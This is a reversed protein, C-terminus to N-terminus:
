YYAEKSIQIPWTAGMDLLKQKAVENYCILRYINNPEVVGGVFFEAQKRIGILSDNGWDNSLICEKDLLNDIQDVDQQEYFHVINRNLAHGDSFYFLVGSDIVIQMPVVVHILNEPAVKPVGYGHVINYLMPMRAYFYFPVFDGIRFTTGHITTAVDNNRKAVLEPNGISMYQLEEKRLPPAVIGDRMILPINDIHVLRYLYNM